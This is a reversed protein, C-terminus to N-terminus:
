VGACRALGVLSESKKPAGALQAALSREELSADYNMATPVIYVPQLSLRPPGCGLTDAVTRHRLLAHMCTSCVAQACRVSACPPSPLRKTPMLDIFPLSPGHSTEGVRDVDGAMVADVVMRLM